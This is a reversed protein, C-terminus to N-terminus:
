LRRTFTVASVPGAGLTTLADACAALTAGTTLVDDVLIMSRRSGEAQSGSRTLIPGRAPMPVGTAEITPPRDLRAERGRGRQRGSGRRRLLDEAPEFEPNMRAIEGVLEGAPDFGRWRMRGPAAPVPVLIRGSPGPGVLDAMYGAILPALGTLRRFKFAALLDRAVGEHPACSVVASIGSPPSKRIVPALNLEGTCEPCLPMAQDCRARCVVCLPPALLRALSFLPMWALDCARVWGPSVPNLLPERSASRLRVVLTASIRGSVLYARLPSRPM